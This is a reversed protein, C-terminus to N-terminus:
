NDLIFSHFYNNERVYKDHYWEFTFEDGAKVKVSAPVVIYSLLVDSISEDELCSRSSIVSVM